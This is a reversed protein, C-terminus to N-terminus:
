RAGFHQFTGDCAGDLDDVSPLSSNDEFEMGDEEEEEDSDPVEPDEEQFSQIRPAYRVPVLYRTATGMWSVPVSFTM